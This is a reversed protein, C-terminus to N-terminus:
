KEGRKEACEDCLTLVWGDDRPHGPEGCDQCAAFSAREALSIAAFIAAETEDPIGDVYFRLGGFKEKTQAVRTIKDPDLADIAISLRMVIKDWGQPHECGCYVNEYLEPFKQKLEDRNNIM